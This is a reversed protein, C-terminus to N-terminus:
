SDYSVVFVDDAAMFCWRSLFLPLSFFRGCRSPFLSLFFFRKAKRENVPFFFFVGVEEGGGEPGTGISCRFHCREWASSQKKMTKTKM